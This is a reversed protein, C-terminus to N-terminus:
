IKLTLIEQMLETQRILQQESGEFVIKSTSKNYIENIKESLQLNTSAINSFQSNSERLSAIQQNLEANVYSLERLRYEYEGVQNALYSL